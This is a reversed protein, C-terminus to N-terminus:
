VETQPLFVDHPFLESVLNTFSEENLDLIRASSNSISRSASGSGGSGSTDHSRQMAMSTEVERLPTLSDRSAGSERSGERQVAIGSLDDASNSANLIEGEHSEHTTSFAQGYVVPFREQAAAASSLLDSQGIIVRSAEYQSYDDVPPSITGSRNVSTDLIEQDQRPMYDVYGGYQANSPIATSSDPSLVKSTTYMNPSLVSAPTPSRRAPPPLAAFLAERRKDPDDIAEIPAKRPARRVSSALGTGVGAMTDKGSPSMREEYRGSNPKPVVASEGMFLPPVDSGFTEDDSFPVPATRPTRIFENSHERFPHSIIMNNNGLRDEGYDKRNRSSQSEARRLNVLSQSRRRLAKEEEQNNLLAGGGSPFALHPVPLKKNSSSAIGEQPTTQTQEDKMLAEKSKSGEAANANRARRRALFEPESEYALDDSGRRLGTRSGTRSTGNGGTIYYKRQTITSRSMSRKRKGGPFKTYDFEDYFSPTRAASNSGCIWTFGLPQSPLRADRHNVTEPLRASILKNRVRKEEKRRGISSSTGVASNSRSTDYGRPLRGRSTASEGVGPHTPLDREPFQYAQSGSAGFSSSRQRARTTESTPTRPRSAPSPQGYHVFRSSIKGSQSTNVTNSLSGKRSRSKSSKRRSPTGNKDESNSNRSHFFNSLGALGSSHQREHRRAREATENDEQRAEHRLYSDVSSSRHRTGPRAQNASASPTLGLGANSNDLTTTRTAPGGGLASSAAPAFRPMTQNSGTFQMSPSSHLNPTSYTSSPAAHLTDPTRGGSIYLPQGGQTPRSVLPALALTAVYSNSPGPEDSPIGIRPPGNPTYGDVAPGSPGTHGGRYRMFPDLLPTRPRASSLNISDPFTTYGRISPLTSNGTAAPPATNTTSASNLRSSGAKTNGKLTPTDQQTSSSSM